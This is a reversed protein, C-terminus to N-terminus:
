DMIQFRIHTCKLPPSASLENFYLVYYESSLKHMIELKLRISVTCMNSVMSVMGRVRDALAMTDVPIPSDGSPESAIM